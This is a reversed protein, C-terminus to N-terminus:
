GMNPWSHHLCSTVSIPALLLSDDIKNAWDERIVNVTKELIKQPQAVILSVRSPGLSLLCLVVQTAVWAKLNNQDDAKRTKLKSPKIKSTIIKIYKHPLNRPELTATTFSLYCPFNAPLKRYKSFKQLFKRTAPRPFTAVNSEIDHRQFYIEERQSTSFISRQLTAVNFISREAVDRRQIGINRRQFLVKRSCWSMPNLTAVNFILGRQLTVGNDRVNRRQLYFEQSRRSTPWFM